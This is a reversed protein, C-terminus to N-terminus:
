HDEFNALKVVFTLYSGGDPWRYHIINIKNTVVEKPCLSSM